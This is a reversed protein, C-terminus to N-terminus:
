RLMLPNLERAVKTEAEVLRTAHTLSLLYDSPEFVVRWDNGPAPVPEVRVNALTRLANPSTVIDTVRIIEPSVRSLEAMFNDLSDQDIDLNLSYKKMQFGKPLFHFENENYSM